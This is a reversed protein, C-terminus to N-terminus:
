RSEFFRTKVCGPDLAATAVVNAARGTYGSVVQQVALTPLTPGYGSPIPGVCALNIGTGMCSRDRYAEKFRASPDSMRRHSIRQAGQRRFEHRPSDRDDHGAATGGAADAAFDAVADM